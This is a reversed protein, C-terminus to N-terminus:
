RPVTVSQALVTAGLGYIKGAPLYVAVLEISMGGPCSRSLSNIRARLDDQDPTVDRILVGFTSVNSSNIAYKQFAAVFQSQWPANIARFGLYQILQDRIKEDLCLDEIQQKLGKPGYMVGPPYKSESSTKVEGFAFRDGGVGSCIGVLDAGPLSSGMRRVDRSDPWPFACSRHDTLYAEAIAEGIRWDEIAVTSTLIRSISDLSFETEAAEALLQELEAVGHTDFVLDPIEKALANALEITSWSIGCGTVPANGLSYELLGNAVPM